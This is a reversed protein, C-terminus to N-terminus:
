AGEQPGAFAISASPFKMLLERYLPVRQFYDWLVRRDQAARECDKCLVLPLWFVKDRGYEQPESRRLLLIIGVLPFFLLALLVIPWSIGGRVVARECEARVQTVQDAERGCGVCRNDAPLRGSALLREIAMEPSVGPYPSLGIEARLQHLPPVAITRGCACPIKAGASGESVSTSAGCECRVLFNM